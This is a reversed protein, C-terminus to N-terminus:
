SAPKMVYKWFNMQRNIRTIKLSMIGNSEEFLYKARLKTKESDRLGKEM